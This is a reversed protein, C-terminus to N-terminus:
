SSLPGQDAAALPLTLEFVTGEGPTSSEVVLRGDHLEALQRSIFLGLGVGPVKAVTPAASRYFRDFVKDRQDGAIGM